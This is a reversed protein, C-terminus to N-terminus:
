ELNKRKLGAGSSLGLLVNRVVLPYEQLAVTDYKYEVPVMVYWATWVERGINLNLKRSNCIGYLVM